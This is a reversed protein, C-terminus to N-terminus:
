LGEKDVTDGLTSRQARVQKHTHAHTYARTHYGGKFPVGQSSQQYSGM